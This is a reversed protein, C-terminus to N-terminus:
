AVVDHLQEIVATSGFRSREDLTIRAMACGPDHTFFIRGSREALDALLRSKEDILQEPYRDYGM